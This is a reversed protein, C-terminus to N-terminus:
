RLLLAAVLAGANVVVGLWYLVLFKTDRTKHRFVRQAVFGGPFGGLLDAIHLTRERIRWSGRQARRKDLGYLVFSILSMLLYWAPILLWPSLEPM